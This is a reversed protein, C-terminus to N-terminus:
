RWLTLHEKMAFWGCFITNNSPTLATMQVYLSIRKKNQKLCVHSDLTVALCTKSTLQYIRMGWFRLSWSSLLKTVLPLTVRFILLFLQNTIFVNIVFRKLIKVDSSPEYCYSTKRKISFCYSCIIWIVALIRCM